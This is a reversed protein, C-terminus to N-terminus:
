AASNGDEARAEADQASCRGDSSGPATTEADVSRELFLFLEKDLHEGIALYVICCDYDM